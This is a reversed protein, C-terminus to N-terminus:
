KNTIKAIECALKKAGNVDVLDNQKDILRLRDWKSKILRDISAKLQGNDDCLKGVGIIIGQKNMENCIDKQNDAVVIGVTPVKMAALEYITSGTASIALDCKKMLSSMNANKYLKIREDNNQVDELIKIISIEFASGVVIHINCKFDELVKLIKLTNFDKDMGGVTILIDEVEEKIIVDNDERFEDRLLCYRPGLFLKTTKPSKLDYKLKAANINQNVIFDVNMKCINIDDIYGTFKFCEKVDDFYKEDVCYSDTILVDAKLSEQAKKIHEIFNIESILITKFGLSKIKEIGSSYKLPEELSTRCMFIVENNHKLENALVISRMVHGLGIDKGGDARIVIRAM